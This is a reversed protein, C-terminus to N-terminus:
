KPDIVSRGPQCPLPEKLLASWNEIWGDEHNAFPLAQLEICPSLSSARRFDESVAPPIVDDRVGSFHMQPISAVQLAFTRANLSGPMQDVHHIVNVEEQDLNGAVTRISLVDHRRAAIIVAIAGGGSYGIINLNKQNTFPSVFHDIAQNLSTIVEESFRRDTWYTQACFPDRNLSTFQCPRALYIVNEAADKSALALGLFKHPTPDTSPEHAALWSRGDGEIYINYPQTKDSIRIYTTLLFSDTKFQERQLGARRGMNDAENLPNEACSAMVLVIVLVSLFHSRMLTSLM